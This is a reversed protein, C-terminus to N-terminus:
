QHRYDDWRGFSLDMGGIFAIKQDVVVMKEHHTWVSPVPVPDPHRFVLINPHLDMLVKKAHYSGVMMALEIEKFILCFVHVGQEAKRKLINMLQWQSGIPAPRKMFLEPTLWWGTIFIEETASDLM